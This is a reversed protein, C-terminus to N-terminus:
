DNILLKIRLMKIFNSLNNINYICYFDGMILSDVMLNYYFRLTNIDQYKSALLVRLYMSLGTLLTSPFFASPV